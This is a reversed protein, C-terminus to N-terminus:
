FRGGTVADVPTQDPYRPAAQEQKIRAVDVATGYKGYIEAADVLLDQDMQDRDRDDAAIAKQADIQLKAMDTGAKIQAKQTEAQLFAEPQTLQQQQQAAMQQRQMAMQQEIQPNMQKFYRDSNKIGNMSLIDSLTNRVETMGVLGNEPGYSQFIQMQVQLAQQLVAQRQDHMGTGLGVNVSVDMRQDWSRPDVPEYGGDALRIMDAENCNQIYMVLMLKFLRTVGGEALNRAMMEIHNASGQMAAMVATATQAQLADPNMGMSTKNIGTKEEITQDYYQIAALTQGAVFPVSMPQIANPQAVRVIGGIENNMLDEINVQGDLIETRPNNTLAVNNLVGRLLATASDQDNCILDAISKGYFTHPDPDAEFVAFPVHDWLEYDLLKYNDGGMTIKYLQAIGTGDIDMRMYAETVLVRRMSPDLQSSEDGYLNSYGQREFEEEQAMVSTDSSSGLDYVEDIDYGMAVLDGARVETSQAVVYADEISRASADIYFEEPPVSSVSMAGTETTRMLKLSHRPSEVEIGTADIEIKTEVTHEIVEVNDENVLATFEMQNLNTFNYTDATEKTDWSVKVVGTKKLLADFFADYLVKYGGLEEFKYNIYKTAQEAFKVESSVRPVYEVVANSQLFVRMLNPMIARITDRVKTAVVNSMGEEEGIDVYGDYYRQAKLRDSLIESEVFSIAEEVASSAINQIDDDDLPKLEM